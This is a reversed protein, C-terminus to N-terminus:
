SKYIEQDLSCQSLIMRDSDMCASESLNTLPRFAFTDFTLILFIMLDNTIWWYQNPRLIKDNRNKFSDGIPDNSVLSFEQRNQRRMVARRQLNEDFYRSLMENSDEIKQNTPHFTWRLFYGIPYSM